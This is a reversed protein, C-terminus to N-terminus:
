WFCYRILSWFKKWLTLLLLILLFFLLWLWALWLLFLIGTYLIIALRCLTRGGGYEENTKIENLQLINHYVKFDLKSRSNNIQDLFVFVCYNSKTVSCEDFYFMKMAKLWHVTKTRVVNQSLPIITSLLIKVVSVVCKLMLATWIALM